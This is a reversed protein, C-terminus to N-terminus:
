SPPMGAPRVHESWFATAMRSGSAALSRSLSWGKAALWKAGGKVANLDDDFDSQELGARTLHAAALEPPCARVAFRISLLLVALDDMQGAVPIFGPVLDVPSVTYIGGVALAAKAKGPVKPDRAMNAVLRVYKPLRKVAIWFQELAPDRREHDSASSWETAESRNVASSEYAPAVTSMAGARQESM